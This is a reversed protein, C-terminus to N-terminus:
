LLNNADKLKQPLVKIILVKKSLFPISKRYSTLRLYSPHRKSFQDDSTCDCNTKLKIHSHWKLRHWCGKVTFILIGRLRKLEDRIKFVRMFFNFICTGKSIEFM